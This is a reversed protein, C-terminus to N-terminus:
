KKEEQLRPKPTDTNWLSEGIVREIEAVNEHYSALADLYQQRAEFLTRQADLVDLYGFKGQLYATNISAFTQTAAPLIDEKLSTITALAVSLNQYSETMIANVKVDTARKEEGAKAVLHEAERISGENRNFLPLPVSFGVAV